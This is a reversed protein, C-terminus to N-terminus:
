AHPNTNQLVPLYLKTVYDHMMRGATFNSSVATITKQMMSVWTVPLGNADRDYYLPIIKHELTDYLDAASDVPSISFGVNALDLEETWGDSIACQLAGNLGAKMGSTGCAEQGKIPTNLWVDSGATLLQALRLNYNPLFVVHDSLGHEAILKLIEAIEAKAPLDGPHAKGALIIQVPKGPNEVIQKLRAMDSFLLLPQKYSAIRRAWVITLVDQKLHTNLEHAIHRLLKHKLDGHTEWTDDDSVELGRHLQDNIERWASDQWLERHVGNTIPILNSDPWIDKAFQAHSESVASTRFSESMALHTMSFFDPNKPVAGMRLIDDIPLNLHDAYEKILRSVLSAPFMDNGSPILTHNTFVTRQEAYRLGEKFEKNTHKMYQHAIEMVAFASHGENLHYVSPEIGLQALTKVGGIGLIIEQQIRWDSDAPYLNLTLRKDLESNEEVDTDLLLVRITGELYQWIRAYIMRDAIQMRIRVHQRQDDLLPSLPLGSINAYAPLEDQVEHDSILQKFYGQKYLLGVGVLPFGWGNAQRVVDGALIGLGGSFIPLEDSLAFEACFYAVPHQELVSLKPSQRKQEEFTM